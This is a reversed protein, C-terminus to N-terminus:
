RRDIEDLISNAKSKGHKCELYECVWEVLHEKFVGKILQHLLDPTVLENINANPFHETFPQPSHINLRSDFLEIRSSVTAKSVIGYTDWLTKSGFAAKCVKTHEASRLVPDPKDLNGAPSM